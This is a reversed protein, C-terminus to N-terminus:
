NLPKDLRQGAAAWSRVVDIPQSGGAAQQVTAAYRSSINYTPLWGVLWGAWGALHDLEQENMTDRETNERM